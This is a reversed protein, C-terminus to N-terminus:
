DMDEWEWAEFPKDLGRFLTGRTLGEDPTYLDGWTQIPAYVMALSPFKGNSANDTRDPNCPPMDTTGNRERDSANFNDFLNM